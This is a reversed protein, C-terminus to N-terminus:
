IFPLACDLHCFTLGHTPDLEDQVHLHKGGSVLLCHWSIGDPPCIPPNGIDGGDIVVIDNVINLSSLINPKISESVIVETLMKKQKM